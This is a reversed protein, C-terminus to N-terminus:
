RRAPVSLPRGLFCGPTDHRLLQLHSSAENALSADQEAALGLHEVAMAPRGGLRYHKGLQLNFYPVDSPELQQAERYIAEADRYERLERANYALADFCMRRNERRAQPDEIQAAM